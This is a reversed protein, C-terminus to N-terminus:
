YCTALREDAKHFSNFHSFSVTNCKVAWASYWACRLDSQITVKM